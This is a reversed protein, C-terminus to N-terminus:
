RGAMEAPGALALGPAAGDSALWAHLNDLQAFHTLDIQLPTVSVFREAVAHFDTGEGADQADGAAGIWYVTEGRPNNSKIVAEAKHRRGLRTVRVGRLEGHPVDPVNVNLLM